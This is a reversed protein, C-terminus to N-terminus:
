VTWNIRVGVPARTLEKWGVFVIFGGSLETIADKAPLVVYRRM